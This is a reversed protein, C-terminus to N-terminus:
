SMAPSSAHRRPGRLDSLLLSAAETLTHALDQHALNRVHIRGMHRLARRSPGNHRVSLNISVMFACCYQGDRRATGGALERESGRRVHSALRGERKSQTALTVILTLYDVIVDAIAFPAALAAARARGAM